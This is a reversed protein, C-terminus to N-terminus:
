FMMLEDVSLKIKNIVLSTFLEQLREFSFGFLRNMPFINILFRILDSMVLLSRITEQNRHVGPNRKLHFIFVPGVGEFFCRNGM